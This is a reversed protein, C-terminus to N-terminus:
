SCTLICGENDSVVAPLSSADPKHAADQGRAM